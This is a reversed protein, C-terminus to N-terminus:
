KLLQTKLWTNLTDTLDDTPYYTKLQADTSIEFTNNSATDKFAFEVTSTTTSYNSALNATM